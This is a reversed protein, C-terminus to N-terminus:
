KSTAAGGNAADWGDLFRLTVDYEFDDCEATTVIRQRHLHIDKYCIYTDEPDMYRDQDIWNYVQVQLDALKKGVFAFSFASVIVSLWGSTFVKDYMFYVPSGVPLADCAEVYNDTGSNTVFPFDARNAIIYTETIANFAYMLPIYVVLLIVWLYQQAFGSLRELLTPPGVHAKYTGHLYLAIGVRVKEKAEFWAFISCIVYFLILITYEANARPYRAYTLSSITSTLGVCVGGNTVPPDLQSSEEFFALEVRGVCSTNFDSM